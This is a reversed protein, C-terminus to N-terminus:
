VIFSHIPFNKQASSQANDHFYLIFDILKSIGVGVAVATEVGPHDVRHEVSHAAQGADLTVGGMVSAVGHAPVEYFFGSVDSCYLALEAV